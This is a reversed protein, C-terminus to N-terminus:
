IKEGNKSWVLEIALLDRVLESAIAALLLAALLFRLLHYEWVIQVFARPDVCLTLYRWGSSTRSPLLPVSSDSRSCSSGRTSSSSSSPTNSQRADMTSTSSSEDSPHVGNRCGATAPEGRRGTVTEVGTAATAGNHSLLSEANDSRLRADNGSANAHTDIFARLNDKKFHCHTEADHTPSRCRDHAINIGAAFFFLFFINSRSSFVIPREFWQLRTDTWRSCVVLPLHVFHGM